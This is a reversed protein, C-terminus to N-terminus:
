ALASGGSFFWDHLRSFPLRAEPATATCVRIMSGVWVPQLHLSIAAVVGVVSLWIHPLFWVHLAFVGKSGVQLDPPVVPSHQGTFLFALLVGFSYVDCM